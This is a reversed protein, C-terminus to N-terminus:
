LISIGILQRRSAYQDDAGRRRSYLKGLFNVTRASRNRERHALVNAKRADIAALIDLPPEIRESNEVLTM